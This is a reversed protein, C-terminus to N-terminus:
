AQDRTGALKKLGAASTNRFPVTKELWSVVHAWSQKEEGCVAGKAQYVTAANNTPDIVANEGFIRSTSSHCM